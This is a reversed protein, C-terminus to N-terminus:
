VLDVIEQGTLEVFATRGIAQVCVFRIRGNAAKKDAQMAVALAAPSIGLPIETPLGAQGLLRAIRDVVDATCRGLGHSVRAAAVMGIAVAEGHLLEKYDTLAELAHGVTHGFNLVARSGREEREDAAVVAAKQAACAAVLDSLVDARRALVDALGHELRAFLDADGIVGYKITEALGAVFERRPLTQLLEVDAVVFRPQHFAGLLNKGRAHNVGTKGGIAADVQAVLTTAVIATPLGRLLTAAAFGALDSVVGGGLAVVPSRRELGAELLRDYIMALWALNKHEEGDPIEIVTVQFGATRLSEVVPAAYLAGVRESTVLAARGGLALAALRPGVEGLLHTGVVVPYARPGLDVLVERVAQPAIVRAEAGVAAM